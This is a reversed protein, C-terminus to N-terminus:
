VPGRQPDAGLFCDLSAMRNYQACAPSPEERIMSGRVGFWCIAGEAEDDRRSV